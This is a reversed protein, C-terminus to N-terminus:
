TRKRASSRRDCSKKDALDFIYSHLSSDRSRVVIRRLGSHPARDIEEVVGRVGVVGYGGDYPVTIGIKTGVKIVIENKDVIKARSM